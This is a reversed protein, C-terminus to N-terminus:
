PTEGKLYRCIVSVYALLTESSIAEDAEYECATALLDGATDNNPDATFAEDAEDLTM